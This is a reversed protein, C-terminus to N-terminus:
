KLTETHSKLPFQATFPVKLKVVSAALEEDLEDEDLEEEPPPPATAVVLLVCAEVAFAHSLISAPASAFILMLLLWIATVSIIMSALSLRAFGSIFTSLRFSFGNTM